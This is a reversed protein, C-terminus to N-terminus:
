KRDQAPIPSSTHEAVGTLSASRAQHQYAPIPHTATAASMAAILPQATQGGGADFYHVMDDVLCVVRGTVYRFTAPREQAGFSAMFGSWGMVSSNVWGPHWGQLCTSRFSFWYLM